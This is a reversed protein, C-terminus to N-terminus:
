SGCSLCEGGLDCAEEVEEGNQTIVQFEQQSINQFTVGIKVSAGGDSTMGMIKITHGQFVFSKGTLDKM